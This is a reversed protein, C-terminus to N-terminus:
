QLAGEPGPTHGAPDNEKEQMKDERNVAERAAAEDGGRELDQDRRKKGASGPQRPAAPANFTNMAAEIGRAIFMEAADAARNLAPDVLAWQEPTFRGLVYDAQDMFPPSPDIGIRCRPYAEAGLARQLDTLGNHGGAGGSARLRIAGCPLAVDDVLVLLDAAPDLKYFRVAEAVPLGSRNMYTMPKFLLCPEGDIRAEVTAANFRARAPAGPAHRQALRDVVMFGANHRTNEYTTGPNGLGVILKM